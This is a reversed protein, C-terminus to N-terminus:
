KNKETSIFIKSPPIVSRKIGEEFLLNKVNSAQTFRILESSVTLYEFRLEKIEEKTREISLLTKDAYFNIAIYILAIGLIYFFFPAQKLIIEKTLFSGDLMSVVSENVIKPMRVKPLMKGINLSNRQKKHQRISNKKVKNKHEKSMGM